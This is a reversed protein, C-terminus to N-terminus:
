LTNYKSKNCGGCTGLKKAAQPKTFTQIYGAVDAKVSTTGKKRALAERLREEASKHFLVNNNGDRAQKM